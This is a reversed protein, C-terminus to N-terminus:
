MNKPGHESPHSTLEANSEWLQSSSHILPKKLHWNLNLETFSNLTSYKIAKILYMILCSAIVTQGQLDKAPLVEKVSNFM